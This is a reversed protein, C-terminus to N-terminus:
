RDTAPHGEGVAPSVAVAVATVSALTVVLLEGGDEAFGALNSRTVVHVLDVVVAFVALAALLTALVVTAIVGNATRRRLGIAFALLSCVGVVLWFALEGLHRGEVPGVAFPELAPGLAHGAREHWRLRNDGAIVLLVLMWAILLGDRRRWGAWGVAAAAILTLVLEWAELLSSDDFPSLLAPLPAGVAGIYHLTHWTFAIAFMAASVTLVTIAYPRTPARCAWGYVTRWCELLMGRM